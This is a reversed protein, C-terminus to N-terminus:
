KLQKWKEKKREWSIYVIIAEYHNTKDALAKMAKLYEKKDLKSYNPSDEYRDCLAEIYEAKSLYTYDDEIYVVEKTVISKNMITYTYLNDADISSNSVVFLIPLNPNKKLLKILQERKLDTKM